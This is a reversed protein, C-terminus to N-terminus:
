EERGMGRREKLDAGSCFVNDLESALVLCRVQGQQGKGSGVEDRGEGTKGGGVGGRREEEGHLRGGGAVGDWGSELGEIERRLEALLQRSIANRNRPSNLSM